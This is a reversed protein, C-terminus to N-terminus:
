IEGLPIVDSPASYPTMLRNGLQVLAEGARRRLQAWLGPQGATVERVWRAREAAKLREAYEMKAVEFDIMSLMSEEQGQPATKELWRGDRFDEPTLLVHTEVPTVHAEIGEYGHAYAVSIRHHGDNVFYVEGICYLEVPPLAIQGNVAADVRTWRSRNVCARPLFECTFDKSRGVSGVIQHLPVYELRSPQRRHAGVRAAVDDFKVLDRRRGRFRRWMDYVGAKYTGREYRQGSLYVQTIDVTEGKRRAVRAPTSASSGCERDVSYVPNQDNKPM